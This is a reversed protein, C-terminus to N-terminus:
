ACGAVLLLPMGGWAIAILALVAMLLAAHSALGTARGDRRLVHCARWVLLACISFATLTAAALLLRDPGGPRMGAPTCQAAALGYNFAFHAIWVLLPLTAWLVRKWFGEKHADTGM